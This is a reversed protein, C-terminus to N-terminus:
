EKKKNKSKPLEGLSIQLVEQGAERTFAVFSKEYEYGDEQGEQSKAWARLKAEYAAASEKIQKETM